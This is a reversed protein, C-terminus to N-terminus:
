VTGIYNFYTRICICCFESQTLNRMFSGKTSRSYPFARALVNTYMLSDM